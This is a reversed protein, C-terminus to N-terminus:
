HKLIYIIEEKCLFRYNDPLKGYLLGYLAELPSVIVKLFAYTKLL